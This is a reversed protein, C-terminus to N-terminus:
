RSIKEERLKPQLPRKVVEFFEERMKDQTSKFFVARNRRSIREEFGPTVKGQQRRWAKERQNMYLEAAQGILPQAPLEKVKQKIETETYGIDILHQYLARGPVVNRESDPDCQDRFLRLIMNLAIPNTECAEKSKLHKDCYAKVERERDFVTFAEYQAESFDRLTQIQDESKLDLPSNQWAQPWDKQEAAEPSIDLHGQDLVAQAVVQIAARKPNTYSCNGAKQGRVERADHLTLHLDELAPVTEFDVNRIIMGATRKFWDIKDENAREYTSMQDLKESLKVKRASESLNPAGLLPSLDGIQFVQVGLLDTGTGKNCVYIKDRYMVTMAVHKEWYANVLVPKGQLYAEAAHMWHGGKGSKSQSKIGVELTDSILHNLASMDESLEDPSQSLFAQWSAEISPLTLYVFNGDLNIEVSTDHNSIPVKDDIGCKHALMKMDRGLLALEFFPMDRELVKPDVVSHRRLGHQIISDQMEEDTLPQAKFDLNLEDAITHALQIYAEMGPLIKDAIEPDSPVHLGHKYIYDQSYKPMELIAQLVHELNPLKSIAEKFLSTEKLKVRDAEYQKLLEDWPLDNQTKIDDLFQKVQKTQHYLHFYQLTKDYHEGPIPHLTLMARMYASNGDLSVKNITQDNPSSMANVFKNPMWAHPDGASPRILQYGCLFLAQCVTETCNNLLDNDHANIDLGKDILPKLAEVVDEAGRTHKHYKAFLDMFCQGQKTLSNPAAGQMILNVATEYAQELGSNTSDALGKQIAQQLQSDLKPPM